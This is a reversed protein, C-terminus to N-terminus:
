KNESTQQNDIDQGHPCSNKDAKKKRIGIDRFSLASRLCLIDNIFMQILTTNAFSEGQRYMYQAHSEQEWFSISVMQKIMINILGYGLIWLVKCKCFVKWVIFHKWM